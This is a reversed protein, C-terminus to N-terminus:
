RKKMGIPMLVGDVWEMGPPIRRLVCACWPHTTGVVALWDERKRGVNTGNAILDVLRFVKPNGDGDVYLERCKQCAKPNPIKCVSADGGHKNLIGRAAGENEVDQLETSAIRDLDQEYMDLRRGLEGRLWKAGRRGAKAEATADKIEAEDIARQEENYTTVVSEGMQVAREGLHRANQAAGQRAWEIAERDKASLIIPERLLEAAIEAESYGTVTLGVDSLRAALMGAIFADELYDRRIASAAEADIIGLLVLRDLDPQPVTAPGYVDVLYGMFHDSIRRRLEAVTAASVVAM